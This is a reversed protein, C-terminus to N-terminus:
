WLPMWSAGYKQESGLLDYSRLISALWSSLPEKCFVCQRLEPDSVLAGDSSGTLVTSASARSIAAKGHVCNAPCSEEFVTNPCNHSVTSPSVFPSLDCPASLCSHISDEMFISQLEQLFVCTRTTETDWAATYGDRADDLTLSSCDSGEM